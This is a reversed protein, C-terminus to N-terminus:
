RPDFHRTSAPEDIKGVKRVSKGSGNQFWVQGAAVLYGKSQFDHGSFRNYGPNPEIERAPLDGIWSRLLRDAQTTRIKKPRPHSHISYGKAVMGEPVRNLQLLCAMAAESTGLVIGLAGNDDSAIVGCVEVEHKATYADLLPAIRLAFADMEEGPEALVTALKQYPIAHGSAVLIFERPNDESVAVASTASTSSVTEVEGAQATATFLVLAMMFLNKMHIATM